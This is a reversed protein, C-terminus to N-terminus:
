KGPIMYLWWVGFTMYSQGGVDGVPIALSILSSGVTFGLGPALDVSLGKERPFGMVMDGPTTAYVPIIDCYSDMCTGPWKIIPSIVAFGAPKGMHSYFFQAGLNSQLALSKGEWIHHLQPAVYSDGLKVAVQLRELLAYRPMVSWTVPGVNNMSVTNTVDVKDTIGCAINLDCGVFGNVDAYIFPTFALTKAGTTMGFYATYSYALINVSFALLLLYIRHMEVGTYFADGRTRPVYTGNKVSLRVSQNM